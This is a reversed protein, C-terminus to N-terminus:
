YVRVVPPYVDAASLAGTTTPCKGSTGSEAAIGVTTTVQNAVVNAYYPGKFWKTTNSSSTTCLRYRTGKTLSFTDLGTLTKAGTTSCDSATAPAASVLPALLTTGTENYLCPSCSGGLTSVYHALATASTISDRAIFTACRMTNATLTAVEGGAPDIAPAGDPLWVYTPNTRAALAGTASNFIVDRGLDSVNASAVDSAAFTGDANLNNTRSTSLNAPACLQATATGNNSGEKLTVCGGTSAAAPSDFAPCTLTGGVEACSTVGNGAGTLTSVPGNNCSAKITYTAQDVWWVCARAKTPPPSSGYMEFKVLKGASNFWSKVVNEINAPLYAHAVGAFVTLLGFTLLFRRLHKPM